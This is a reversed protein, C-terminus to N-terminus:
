FRGLEVKLQKIIEGLDTNKTVRHHLPMFTFMNRMAEVLEPRVTSASEVNDESLAKTHERLTNEFKTQKEKLLNFWVDTHTQSMLDMYGSEVINIISVIIATEEKYKRHIVRPGFKAMKNLLENVKRKLEEDPYNQYNKLNGEFGRYIDDRESDAQSVVGGHENENQMGAEYRTFAETFADFYVKLGMEDIPRPLIIEKTRLGLTYLEKNNLKSFSLHMVNIKPKKSFSFYIIKISICFM